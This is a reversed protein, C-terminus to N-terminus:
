LDLTRKLHQECRQRQEDTLTASRLFQVQTAQRTEYALGLLAHAVAKVANVGENGHANGLYHEANGEHENLM